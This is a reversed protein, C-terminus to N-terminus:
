RNVAQATFYEGRHGDIFICGRALGDDALKRLTQRVATESRGTSASLWAATAAPGEFYIDEPDEQDIANKFILTIPAEDLADLVEDYVGRM